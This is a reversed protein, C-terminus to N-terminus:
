NINYIMISKEPKISSIASKVCLRHFDPYATLEVGIDIGALWVRVLWAKPRM